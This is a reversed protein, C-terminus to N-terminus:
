ARSVATQHRLRYAGVTMGGRWGHNWQRAFESSDLDLGIGGPLPGQM